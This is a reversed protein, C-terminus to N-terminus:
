PSWEGSLVEENRDGRRLQATLSSSCLMGIQDSLISKGEFIM